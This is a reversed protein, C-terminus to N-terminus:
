QTRSLRFAAGTCTADAVSDNRSNRCKQFELWSISTNPSTPFWLPSQLQGHLAESKKPLGKWPRFLPPVPILVQPRFPLHRFSRLGSLILGLFRANGFLDFSLFRIVRSSGECFSAIHRSSRTHSRLMLKNQRRNHRRALAGSELCAHGPEIGAQPMQRGPPGDVSATWCGPFRRRQIFNASGSLSNSDAFKHTRKTEDFTM